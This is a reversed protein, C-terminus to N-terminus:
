HSSFAYNGGRYISYQKHIWGVLLWTIIPTTYFGGNVWNGIGGVLIGLIMIYEIKRQISILKILKYMTNIVVLIYIVGGIGLAVIMNSLDMETSMADTEGSKDAAKTVSAIGHGVPNIVVTKMGEAVREIHGLGTQEESLPDILGEIMHQVAPEAVGFWSPNLRPLFSWISFLVMISILGTVIKRLLTKKSIIVIMLLALAMFFIVTRSSAFFISLLTILVVSIHILYNKNLVLKTFGIMFTIMTFYVFEQASPFTGIARVTEPALYLAAYGTLDVWMQEFPLIGFFTQYIGYLAIITGIVEVINLVVVIDKQKIKYFAIFYWLWPVIIYIAAVFGSIPSGSYPNFMQVCGFIFLTVMLKDPKEEGLNNHNKMEWFLSIALIVTISPGLILLPDFSSWSAIPILARRILGMFALYIILFIIIRERVVAVMALTFIFLSAFILVRVNGTSISLRGVVFLALLLVGLEILRRRYLFTAM